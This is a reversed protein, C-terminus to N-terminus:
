PPNQPDRRKALHANYQVKHEGVIDTQLRVVYYLPIEIYSHSAGLMFSSQGEHLHRGGHTHILLMVTVILDPKKQGDLIM